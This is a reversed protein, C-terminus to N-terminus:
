IRNHFLIQQREHQYQQSYGRKCLTIHSTSLLFGGSSFQINLGIHLTDGETDGSYRCGAIAIQNRHAVITEAALINTHYEIATDVQHIACTLIITFLPTLGIDQSLTLTLCRRVKHIYGKAVGGNYGISLAALHHHQTACSIHRVNLTRAMMVM